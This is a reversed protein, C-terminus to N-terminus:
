DEKSGNNVETLLQQYRKEKEDSQVTWGTEHQIGTEDAKLGHPCTSEGFVNTAGRAHVGDIYICTSTNMPLFRDLQRAQGAVFAEEGFTDHIDYPM